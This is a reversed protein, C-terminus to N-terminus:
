ELHDKLWQNAEETSLRIIDGQENITCFYRDTRKWSIPEKVEYLRETELIYNIFVGRSGVSSAHTYDKKGRMFERNYKFQPDFGLIRAVWYSQKNEGFTLDGLGPVLSNTFNRFSRLEQDTDDGIAEIRINTKM